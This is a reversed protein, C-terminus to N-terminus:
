KKSIQFLEKLSVLFVSYYMLDSLKTRKWSLIPQTVSLVNSLSQFTDRLSPNFNKQVSNRKIQELPMKISSQILDLSLQSLPKSISQNERSIRLSNKSIQGDLNPNPFLQQSSLNLISRRLRLNNSIRRMLFIILQKYCRIM